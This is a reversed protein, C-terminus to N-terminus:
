PPERLQYYCAVALPVCLVTFVFVARGIGHFPLYDGFYCAILLTPLISIVVIDRALRKM